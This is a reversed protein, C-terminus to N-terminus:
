IGFIGRRLFLRLRRFVDVSGLFGYLFLVDLGARVPLAVGVSRRIGVRFSLAHLRDDLLVLLMGFLRGLRRLIRLLFSLFLKRARTQDDADDKCKNQDRRDDKRDAVKGFLVRFRLRYLGRLVALLGFFRRLIDGIKGLLLVFGLFFRLGFVERITMELAECFYDYAEKIEYRDKRINLLVSINDLSLVSKTVAIFVIAAIQERDYQKRIPNDVLKKKVYNS